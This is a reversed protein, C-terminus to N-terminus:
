PAALLRTSAEAEPAGDTLRDVLEQGIGLLVDDEVPALADVIVLMRGTGPSLRTRVCQRWNWRRCTVGADDRWVVEGADVPVTVAAGDVVTDFPEDGSAVVLRPPGVYRDLDEGGVPVLHEVSVANYLDTLRDIRPLGAEVRRLLAEVSSRAVRPKVGFGAFAERWAAVEALAEPPRGALRELATREARSLAEDSGADTSGGRVGSVVVLLARYDPALAFVAEDVTAAGLVGGTPDGQPAAAGAHPDLETM